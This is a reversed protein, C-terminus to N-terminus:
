AFTILTTVSAAFVVFLLGIVVQNAAKPNDRKWDGVIPWSSGMYMIGLGLFGIVAALPAIIQAVDRIDTFLQEIFTRLNM